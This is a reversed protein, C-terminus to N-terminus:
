DLYIKNILHKPFIKFYKLVYNKSIYKIKINNKWNIYNFSLQDRHSFKKIEYFWKNMFKICRQNNHNRIIICSEILGKNDPFKEKKYRKYIIKGISKKEKKLLTVRNFVILSFIILNFISNRKPHELTYIYHRPSLIRLLFEDM